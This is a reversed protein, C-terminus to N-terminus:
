PSRLWRYMNKPSIVALGRGIRLDSKKTKTLNYSNLIRVLKSINRGVEYATKETNSTEKATCFDRCTVYDRKDLKAKTVQTQQPKM